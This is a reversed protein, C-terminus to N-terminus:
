QKNKLENKHPFDTLNIDVSLFKALKEPKDQGVIDLILLNDKDKFYSMIDEHHKEWANQAQSRDPFGCGYVLERIKFQPSVKKSICWNRKREFYPVISDLWSDLDRITYIFKSGPFKKDLQKYVPIVPIDTAGDNQPDWLQQETPYHITKIGHQNLVHNLTTTGTRSLGIGFVKYTM